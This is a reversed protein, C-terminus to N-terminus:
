DGPSSSRALWSRWRCCSTSPAWSSCMTTPSPTHETLWFLVALLAPYGVPYYASVEQTVYSIYGRGAAMEHGYYWYSYQDGSVLAEPPLPKLATFWAIRLVAAVGLLGLLWYIQARTLPGRRDGASILVASPPTGDSEPPESEHTESTVVGEIAM